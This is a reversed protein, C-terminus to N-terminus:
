PARPLQVQWEGAWHGPSSLGPGKVWVSHTGATDGSTFCVLAIGRSLGTVQPKWPRSGVQCHSCVWVRLVTSGAAADESGHVPARKGARWAPWPSRLSGPCSRTRLLLRGWGSLSARGRTERSSAGFHELQVCLWTATYKLTSLAAKAHCPVGSLLHMQTIVLM